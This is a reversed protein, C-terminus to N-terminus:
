GVKYTIGHTRIEQIEQTNVYRFGADESEHINTDRVLIYGLKANKQQYKDSYRAAMTRLSGDKEKFKIGFITKTSKIKDVADNKGIKVVVEKSM